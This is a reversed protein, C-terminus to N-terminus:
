TAISHALSRTRRTSPPPSGNIEPREKRSRSETRRERQSMGGWVGEWLGENIAYDLCLSRVPCVAGGDQGNCVRKAQVTEARQNGGRRDSDDMTEPVFLSVGAGLCKAGKKWFDLRARDEEPIFFYRYASLDARGVHQEQDENDSEWDSLEMM